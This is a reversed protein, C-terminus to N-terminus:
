RALEIRIRQVEEDRRHYGTQTVLIEAESLHQASALRRAQVLHYDALYLRLGSRMAVRFVEALDAEDGRALLARPLHGNNGSHRLFEVARDLHHRAAPSGAPRIHGLSLHALGIGLLWKSQEAIELATEARHFVETHKGQDILLDCAFYGEMGRLLPDQPDAHAQLTEAERFLAVASRADGSYHFVQALGARKQLRQVIDQSRDAYELAQRAATHASPLDGLSVYIQSLESYGVAANRWHQRTHAREVSTLAVAMEDALRGLAAAAEASARCPRVADAFRGLGQLASATVNLVWDRAQPPLIEVPQTWPKSFFCALLSLDTGFQGLVRVLYYNDGGRNIRDRYVEARAEEYREAQCGHYIAQFLPLMEERTNPKDPAKKCYYEYLRSHGDQFEKRATLRMVSAFYERVLAHCDLEDAQNAPESRFILRAKSLRSLAAQYRLNDILPLLLRMAEPEVPRDFYGLARLIDLEPTGEFMRAYSAVINKAHRGVDTEDILLERIDARYRIDGRHFDALYTGLLTLALAHNGFEKSAQELEDDPGQVGLERPCCAGDKPQLNDLDCSLAHDNDSLEKIRVRTTCLVMGRNDTRLEQLLAKMPSDRVEGTSEQLAEVGDVIM